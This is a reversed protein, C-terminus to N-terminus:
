VADDLTFVAPLSAQRNSDTGVLWAGSSSTCLLYQSVKPILAV